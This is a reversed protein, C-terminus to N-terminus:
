EALGFFRNANGAFLAEQDSQPFDEIISAYANVVDGYSSFLRDLPWDSGFFARRVGWLEICTEVWPRISEVTWRHDGMGLGSIKVVTHELDALASMGERWQKFYDQDRRLPYGAHDICVAVGATRASLRAFRRMDEVPPNTCYILGLPELLAFGAQWRKNDIHDDHRLDRIGKLCPYQVHRRLTDEAEPSALDAYGIAAHPIGTRDQSEQLWKTESVPDPTGIASQMHVVRTVNQFRTEALFDEATYRRSRIAGYDGLGPVPEVEQRLWDWRLEAVAFDHFHVHADTFPLYAM